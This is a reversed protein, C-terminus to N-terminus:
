KKQKLFKFVAEFDQRDKAEFYTKFPCGIKKLREMMTPLKYKDSSLTENVEDWYLPAAINARDSGRPSYPCIITKGAAHQVYDVYLRNKRNKKLREVTFSDPDKSVLYQAVFATFLRTEEYSYKGNPLPIYIQLGKNGSTKIFAELRLGDLAEKIILSAKVALHFYDRSPPDLDFVIEDPCDKGITQFPIHFELAIQNGLWMLTKLDNCILYQIGEWESSPVFEPAYDPKNKQYFAEGMTGHPYRIVTLHRNKLFPLMYGSVDHLYQIYEQKTVKPDKWLIKEPHTIEIGPPLNRQQVKFQHFTCDKPELDFRFQHFHPERLEGEYLELYKIELCIGPLTTIFRADESSKNKKMTELLAAKEEPKFGFLVHGIQIIEKEDFVSVYFYGNSKEYGTLFCSVYKWNKLKLWHNSRKGEQWISDQTKAVIGEGNHSVVSEWLSDFQDTSQVIKLLGPHDVNLHKPLGLSDLLLELKKRRQSYPFFRLDKGKIMLLDFAILSCPSREAMEKIKSPSRMRGRVQLASFDSKYNNELLVLECDLRIPLTNKLKLSLTDLYQHIEPFISKLSKGNRSTLTIDKGVDLLARYGDFKTEYRWNEGIPPDFTLTPLMPKM